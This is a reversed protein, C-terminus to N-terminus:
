ENVFPTSKFASPNEKYIRYQSLIRYELANKWDSCRREENDEVIFEWPCVLNCIPLYKCHNCEYKEYTKRTILCSESVAKASGDLLRDIDSKALEDRGVAELCKFLTGKHDIVWAHDYAAYGCTHLPGNQSPYDFKLKSPKDPFLENYRNYQYLRFDHELSLFEKPDLGMVQRPGDYTVHGLSLSLNKRYPWIKHEILDEVLQPVNKVNKKDVNVRIVIAVREDASRLHVLQKKYNNEPDEPDRRRSNHIGEPGDITVQVSTIGLDAMRRSTEGDYYIGNTVINSELRVGNLDTLKKIRSQVSYIIDKQLLPEGGFWSIRIQEIGERISNEVHQVIKDQVGTEMKTIEKRSDTSEFCYFCRFNCELTPTILLSMSKRGFERGKEYRKVTMEMAREEEIFSDEVLFGNETLSEYEQRNMRSSDFSSDSEATELFRTMRLDEDEILSNKMSNYILFIGNEHDQIFFNYKSPKM